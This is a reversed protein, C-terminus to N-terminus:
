LHLPEYGVAQALHTKGVGPPGLFLVDKAQRIFNGTALDYIDKRHITPSWYPTKLVQLRLNAISTDLAQAYSSDRDHVSGILKLDL